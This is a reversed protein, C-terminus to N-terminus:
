STYLSYRSFSGTCYMQWNTHKVQSNGDADTFTIGLDSKKNKQKTKNKVNIKVQINMKNM